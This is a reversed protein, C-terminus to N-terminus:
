GDREPGADGCVGRRWYAAVEAARGSMGRERRLFHRIARAAGQECGVMAHGCGHAPWEMARLARELLDTTGAPAGDRTLWAIRSSAAAAIEQREADDAVEIFVFAPTGAPLTELTRAIAPLATEDGALLYWDAEPLDTGGPGMLGVPDGPRANLAFHAGPAPRAPGDEEHLVMDIDLTGAAPDIRRLTYVRSALTDAGAPWLTRGDPAAQPWVPARGAQPLLLRAHIGTGGTFHAADGALRVRRMRPTLPYVDAVTMVRFFPIGAAGDGSWHLSPLADGALSALQEALANRVVYLRTSDAAEVLLDLRGAGARLEARGFPSEFATASPTRALTGHEALRACLAEIMAEPDALPLRAQTRLPAENRPLTETM